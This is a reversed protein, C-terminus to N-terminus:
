KRWVILYMYDQMETYETELAFTYMAHYNQQLMDKIYPKKRDPLSITYINM